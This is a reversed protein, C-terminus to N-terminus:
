PAATAPCFGSKPACARFYVHPLGTSDACFFRDGTENEVQFAKCTITDGPVADCGGGGACNFIVGGCDFGSPCEDDDQCIMGCFTDTTGETVFSLCRAVTAAGCSTLAGCDNCDVRGSRTECRGSTQNCFQNVPCASNDRCFFTCTSNVCSSKPSCDGDRRCGPRCTLTAASCINDFTCHEDVTCPGVPICRTTTIDCFTGGPCDLNSTCSAFSQCFGLTNCFNGAPCGANSTCRCGGSVPDCIQNPACSANSICVCRNGDKRFGPPCCSDGVCVCATVNPDYVHNPPCCETRACVCDKSIPDFKYDLPCCADSACACLNKEADFVHGKPCCVDGACECSKTEENFTYGDPCCDQAGCVCKLEDPLWQHDNPCCKSDRCICSEADRSYEYGDPCCSSDRCVCVGEECSMGSPCGVDTACVCRGTPEDLTYGVPCDPNLSTRSCGAAALLLLPWLARERLRTM